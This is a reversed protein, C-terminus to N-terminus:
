PAGVHKAADRLLLDSLKPETVLRALTLAGVMTSLGVLARRKASDSRLGAYGGALLDVIRKLGETAKARTAEDARVLESALAAFPCGDSLGDRHRASLYSAAAAKLGNSKGHRALAEEFMTAVSDVATVCAEAVLQDKSAFHRYFGGHTLGAAAMLDSLGTASIGNRCFEAAAAEVIRERTEAAEQKSKRMPKPGKLPTVPEHDPKENVNLHYAVDLQIDVMM